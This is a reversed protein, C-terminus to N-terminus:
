LIQAHTTTYSYLMFLSHGTLYKNIRFKFEGSFLLNGQISQPCQAINEYKKLWNGILRPFAITKEFHFKPFISLRM